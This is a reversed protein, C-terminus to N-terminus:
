PFPIQKLYSLLFSTLNVKCMQAHYQYTWSEERKWLINKAIWPLIGMHPHYWDCDVWKPTCCM